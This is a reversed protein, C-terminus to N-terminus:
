FLSIISNLVLQSGMSKVPVAKVAEAVKEGIEESQAVQEAAAHQRGAARRERRRLHSGGVFHGGDPYEPGLTAHLDVSVNGAETEMSLKAKIGRSCLSVFKNVFSNIEQLGAM